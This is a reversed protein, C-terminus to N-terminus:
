RFKVWKSLCITELMKKFFKKAAYYKLM